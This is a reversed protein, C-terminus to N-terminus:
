ESIRFVDRMIQAREVIRFEDCIAIERTVADTWKTGAFTILERKEADGFWWVVRNTAPTRPMTVFLEHMIANTACDSYKELSVYDELADDYFLHSNVATSRLHQTYDRIYSTYLSNLLNVEGNKVYHKATETIPWNSVHQINREFQLCYQYGIRMQQIAIRRALYYGPM